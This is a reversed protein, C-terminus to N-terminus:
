PARTLAVPPQGSDLAKLFAVLQRIDDATLQLPQLTDERRGAAAPQAQPNNYFALVQELNSFRGDHMYPATRSIERLTPTKFEGRNSDKRQLFHLKDAWSDDHDALDSYAGIGNFDDALVAPIGEYRGPDPRASLSLNKPLGLNHFEGDSFNPGSHCLICQARGIFLRLGEQADRSLAKQGVPDQTRLARAFRDFPAEGSLLRREFAELAKGLNSALRNVAQRDSAPIQEWALALPDRAKGPRAQAPLPSTVAPLPGFVDQYAQRLRADQQMLRYLGVRTTAMEIPNELPQIAQAWLTDARGDLFLWRQHGVNWLTPTNRTGAQIGFAQPRGDAWGLAPNHCSACSLKQNGSLKPQYFLMQGLRAAKPNDAQANTPNPEPAGLPSLSYILEKEAAQFQPSGDSKLGPPQCASLCLTLCLTLCLALSLRLCFPQCWARGARTRFCRDFM